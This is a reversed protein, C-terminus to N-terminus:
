TFFGQKCLEGILVFFPASHLPMDNLFYFTLWRM